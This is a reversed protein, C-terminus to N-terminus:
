NVPTYPKHITLKPTQSSKRRISDDTIDYLDRMTLDTEQPSALQLPATTPTTIAREKLNMCHFFSTSMLSNLSCFCCIKVLRDFLSDKFLILLLQHYHHHHHDKGLLQFRCNWLNPQSDPPHITFSPVFPQKPQLKKFEFGSKQGYKPISEFDLQKHGM